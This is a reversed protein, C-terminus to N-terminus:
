SGNQHHALIAIVCALILWVELPLFVIFWSTAGLWGAVKAVIFSIQLTIM